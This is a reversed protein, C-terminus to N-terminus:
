IHLYQIERCAVPRLKVCKQYAKYLIEQLSKIGKPLWVKAELSGEGLASGCAVETREHIECNRISKVSFRSVVPLLSRTVCTCM